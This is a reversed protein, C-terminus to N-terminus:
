KSGQQQPPPSLRGGGSSKGVAMWNQQQVMSTTVDGWVESGLMISRWQVAGGAAMEATVAMETMVGASGLRQRGERGGYGANADDRVLLVIASM